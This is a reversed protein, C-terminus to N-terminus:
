KTGAKALEQKVAANLDEETWEGDIARVFLVKAKKGQIELDFANKGNITVGACTMGSADRRKLGAPQRWDVVEVSAEQPFTELLRKVAAITDEHRGPYFAVVKVKANDPGGKFDCTDTTPAAPQSAAAAAAPAPKAPPPAAERKSCGPGLLALMAGLCSWCITTKLPKIM